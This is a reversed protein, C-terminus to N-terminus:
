VKDVPFGLQEALRITADHFGHAYHEGADGRGDYEDLISKASKVAAALVNNEWHHEEWDIEETIVSGAKIIVTGDARVVDSSLKYM